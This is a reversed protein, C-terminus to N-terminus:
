VGDVRFSGSVAPWSAGEEPVIEGCLHDDAIETIRVRHDALPVIRSSGRYMSTTSVRGAEGNEEAYEGVALDSADGTISIQFILGGEPVDPTGTPASLGFQPDAEIAYSAFVFDASRGLTVDAFGTTPAFAAAVGDLHPSRDLGQLTLSTSAPCPGDDAPAPEVEEEAAPENAAAPTEASAETEEEGGCAAFLSCLCLCLLMRSTSRLM